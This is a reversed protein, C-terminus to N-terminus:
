YAPRRRRILFHIYERYLAIGSSLFRLRLEHHNVAHRAKEITEIAKLYQRETEVFRGQDDWVQALGAEAEWRRRTDVTPDGLVRQFSNRAEPFRKQADAIHGAM